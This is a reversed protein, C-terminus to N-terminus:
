RIVKYCIFYNELDAEYTCEFNCSMVTVDHYAHHPGFGGADRNNLRLDFLVGWLPDTGRFINGNSSTMMNYLNHDDFMFCMSFLCFVFQCKSFDRNKIAETWTRLVNPGLCFPHWKASSMKLHMKKFSFTKIEILIENFKTGLPGTLLIEANSRIIAQRCVM